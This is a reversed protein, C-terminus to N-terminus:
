KRLASAISEVARLEDRRHIITVKRAFKTLYMAEEVATDGGGVVFVEFDEFFSGDCTACYSVGRGTIRSRRSMRDSASSRRDRHHRSEVSLCRARIPASKGELEVETVNASLREVGFHAVQAMM